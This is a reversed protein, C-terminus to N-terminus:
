VRIRDRYQRSFQRVPEITVRSLCQSHWGRMNPVFLQLVNPNGAYGTRNDVGNRGKFGHGTNAPRGRGEFAEMPRVLIATIMTDARNWEWPVALHHRAVQSLTMGLLPCWDVLKMLQEYELWWGGSLKDDDARTSDCFRFYLQGV